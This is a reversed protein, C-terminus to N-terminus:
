NAIIINGQHDFECLSLDSPSLAEQLYKFPQKYDKFIGQHNEISKLSQQLKDRLPITDKYTARALLHMLEYAHIAGAPAVFPEKPTMNLHQRLKRFFLDQKSTLNVHSNFTQLFKLEVDKLYPQIIKFFDGGTIGWHSYIPIDMDLEALDRILIEGEPANGVFLLADLDRKSLEILHDKFSSVGWNFTQVLHPKIGRKSLAESMSHLNGRGWGTNELLLGIKKQDRKVIEHILFDGAYEDRVSLRFVFNPSYKNDVIKTAAAWPILFPIQEQHITKLQKLAIPSHMGGFIALLNPLKILSDLNNLALAPFGSNNLALPRIRPQDQSLEHYIENLAINIGALIYEGSPATKGELSIDLGLTLDDSRPSQNLAELFIPHQYLSSDRFQRALKKVYSPLPLLTDTISAKTDKSTQSSGDWQQTLDYFADMLIKYDALSMSESLHHTMFIASTGKSSYGEYIYSYEPMNRNFSFPPAEFTTVSQFPEIQPPEVQSLRNQHPQREIVPTFGLQTILKNRYNGSEVVFSISDPLELSRKSTIISQNEKLFGLIEIGEQRTTSKLYTGLSSGMALKFDKQNTLLFPLDIFNLPHEKGPYDSTPFISIDIRNQKLEEIIQKGSKDQEPHIVLQIKQNSKNKIKHSLHLLKQHLLSKQSMPHTLNVEIPEPLNRQDNSQRCAIILPITLIGLWFKM